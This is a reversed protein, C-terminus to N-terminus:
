NLIEGNFLFINEGKHIIDFDYQSIAKIFNRSSGSFPLMWDHLEIIVLPFARLWSVDGRFLADEGGEIDIKFILPFTNKAVPHNMIKLPSISNIKTVSRSDDVDIPATMFGWDSRGPDLFRLEGDKDAVAGNFNYCNCGSTNISLLNWNAFDPEIAFIQSNPYNKAFYVASAGINAGADVILAPKIKSQREYYEFLRKGQEWQSIGYDDNVFIQHIVGKDGVSDGRFSFPFEFGNMNIKISRIKM